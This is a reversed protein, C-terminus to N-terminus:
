RKRALMLMEGSLTLPFMANKVVPTNFLPGLIEGVKYRKLSKGLSFLEFYMTHNKVAVVDFGCKELLAGCTARSFYYTHMGQYWWWKKGMARPLLADVDGTYIVVLGGPKLADHVLSMELDADEFHEIVAFLTVVDYRDKLDLESLPENYVKHRRSAREYGWRSTEIGETEFTAAAVDLFVGASCGIDLLRGNQKYKRIVRLSREATKRRQRESVMYVDDNTDQYYRGIYPMPNTIILSCSRCKVIQLTKRTFTSFNHDLAPIADGLEDPYLVEQSESGCITCPIIRKEM